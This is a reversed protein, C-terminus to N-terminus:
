HPVFVATEYGRAVLADLLLPLAIATQRHIDHILLIGGKERDLERLAHELLAAPNRLKWDLTDINWLFSTMPQAKLFADLAANHAGYPFRFFPAIADGIANTVSAHGDTIELKAQELGNRKASLSKLNAHTMSHSGVVHGGAVEAKLQEPWRRANIGQSFFNARVGYAALTDLIKRTILRHPGDDITIVVQGKKLHGERPRGYLTEARAADIPIERSRLKPAQTSASFLASPGSEERRMPATALDVETMAWHKELRGQLETACKLESREAAADIENQFLALDEAGLGLLAPCLSSPDTGRASAFIDAPTLGSSEWDALNSSAANQELSQKILSSFDVVSTAALPLRAFVTTAFLLGV